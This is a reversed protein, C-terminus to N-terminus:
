LPPKSVDLARGKISLLLGTLLPHCVSGPPVFWKGPAAARGQWSGTSSSPAAGMRSKLISANSPFLACVTTVISLGGGKAPTEVARLLPTRHGRGRCFSTQIRKKLSLLVPHAAIFPDCGHMDQAEETTKVPLPLTHTCTNSLLLPHVCCTHARACGAQRRM